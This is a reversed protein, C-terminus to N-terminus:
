RFDAENIPRELKRLENRAAELVEAMGIKGGAKAALFAANLAANHIGAGTLNLRALREVDLGNVPTAAPFVRTWLRARDTASPFPFNVIFRLRRTFARDLASKMNTALIALGRYAEMRQLLYNVEINAYRDHADKVESRKGFLADAEDFFLIAGGGEAADFLRRLNKETEGIYKSVVSSLDIRYLDLRLDTALVEAAMSKGTGSEGAFLASIGLGRNMREGFGWEEYVRGRQAVQDAIQHLLILEADPLVLQDWSAVPDIRQALAELRPRAHLRSGDWLREGLTSEGGSALAEDAILEIAEQDLDFQAVLAAVDVPGHGARAADWAARQELATPRRVDLLLCPTAREPRVDRSGVLLLGDVRDLFTTLAAHAPAHEDLDETEVYLAVPALVAERHWLRATLDLEGPATPLLEVPLRYLPLGLQHSIRAAVAARADKDPGVLDLRPLRAPRDTRQLSRVAATVVAEQSPPLAREAPALPQVLPALRDDLYDLGKLANVIREDARLPSSTLPQGSSQTIEILRWYRLPREPSLVDWAPEDFLTLALAFTPATPASTGRAAAFLAPMGTDLEAAACLLLVEREFESLGLQGAIRVLAPPPDTAAAADMADRARDVDAATVTATPPPAEAPIPAAPAGAPATAEEDRRFWRKRKAPPPSSVPALAVPAAPAGPGAVHRLRLRLWALAAGLYRDNATSWDLETV